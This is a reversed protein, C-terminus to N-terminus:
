DRNQQSRQRDLMHFLWWDEFPGPADRGARGLVIFAITLLTIIIGVTNLRLLLFAVASALYVGGLVWAQTRWFDRATPYIGAAYLLTAFVLLFGTLVGWLLVLHPPDYPLFFLNIQTVDIDV